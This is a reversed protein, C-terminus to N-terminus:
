YKQVEEELDRALVDAEVVIGRDDLSPFVAVLRRDRKIGPLWRAVWADLGIQKPEYERWEGKACAEAYAAHPWIPIASRGMDDNAIAWGESWLSWVVEQDAAKKILYKYRDAANLKQVAQIEQHSPRWAMEIDKM